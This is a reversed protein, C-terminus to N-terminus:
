SRIFGGIVWGLGRGLVYIAAPVAIMWAGIALVDPYFSIATLDSMTVLVFLTLFIVWLASMAVWVRFFGRRWNIAAADGSSTEPPM